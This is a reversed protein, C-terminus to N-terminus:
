KVIIEVRRNNARNESSTNEVVPRDPGIGVATIKDAAIGRTILHERVADARKQSLQMNQWRPGTSDTHGEVVLTPNGGQDKISKAVQDLKDRAIPLLESKGSAFMVAGSLTIVVGRAEEKVAAVQALSDMAAKARREAEIRAQREAALAQETGALAQKGSSVQQRAKALEQETTEKYNKDAGKRTREAREIAANADALQAKRDAVYALDKAPQGEPEDQFAAEAKALAQKATDLDAPALEPASGKKAKEYAARADVLEKPPPTSGCGWGVVLLAVLGVLMGVYRPLSRLSM